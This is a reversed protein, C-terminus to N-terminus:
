DGCFRPECGCDFRKCRSSAPAVHNDSIGVELLVEHSGTETHCRVTVAVSRSGIVQLSDNGCLVRFRSDDAPALDLAGGCHAVLNSGACHTDVERRTTRYENRHRRLLNRSLRCRSVARADLVNVNLLQGFRDIARHRGLHCDTRGHRSVCHHQRFAFNARVDLRGAGGLFRAIDDEGAGDTAGESHEMMM